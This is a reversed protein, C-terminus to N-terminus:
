VEVSEQAAVTGPDIGRIRNLEESIALVKADYWAEAVVNGIAVTPLSFKYTIKLDDTLNRPDVSKTHILDVTAPEPDPATVAPYLGAAVADAYPLTYQIDGGFDVVAPGYQDILALDEVRIDLTLTAITIGRDFTVKSKTAFSTM